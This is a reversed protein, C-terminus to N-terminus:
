RRTSASTAGPREDTEMIWTSRDKEYQYCHALIIGPRRASSISSRMSRSPRASGRSSTRGCTSARSSIRAHKERIKSNMGDAVVILDSDPFETVDEVERQFELRVGLERCREHLLQLLAVRSCGCFGNGGSRM